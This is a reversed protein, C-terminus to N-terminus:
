VIRRRIKYFEVNGYKGHKIMKYKSVLRKIYITNRIGSKFFFYLTEYEKILDDIIYAGDLLNYYGGTNIMSVAICGNYKELIVFMGKDKFVREIRNNYLRLKYDPYKDFISIDFYNRSIEKFM